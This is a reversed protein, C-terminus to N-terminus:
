GLPVNSIDFNWIIPLYWYILVTIVITSGISLWFGAKVMDPIKLVGTSFVIANPPSAVPFMFACSAAITTGMLLALPHVEVALALAGMIPILMTATATNSTVETLIIVLFVVTLVILFLPLESIVTLQLGIWETLGTNTFGAAIALGGGFLILIGWPLNKTTEWNLITGGKKAPLIFLAFTAIMAIITDTINESIYPQLIFSRTMWALATIAFVSVVMKEERSMPGLDKLERRIMENGGPIEKVKTPFLVKTLLVYAMATIIITMPLGFLMWDLFSIDIGHTEKMYAAFILNPPSGIITSLGGALSSYGIALMLSKKFRSIITERDEIIDLKSETLLNSFKSMIALGMPLMMMVTATTSIWMSLFVTAIMFGLIMRDTSHGVISIIKLAIRLHLNWKEMALAIMFGGLFLFITESAYSSTIAALDLGGTLPFLVIPLLATLPIPVAETMWWVAMWSVIALTAKGEYALNEPQFFLMILVFTAPGLFLGIRQATNFTPSLKKQQEAKNIETEGVVTVSRSLSFLSFLKKVSAHEKWLNQKVAFLLGKM